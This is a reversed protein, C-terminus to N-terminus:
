AEEGTVDYEEAVLIRVNVTDGVKHEDKAAFFISGDDEPAEMYSRGVYFLGDESVSEVIVPYVKGVRSKNFSYSVEQQVAMLEKYRRKKTSPHVQNKMRAAPTGEERSYKFVGVRELKAEKLFEALERHEEETEGPFGTILSTRIVCGPIRERIKKIVSRYLRGDGRRNMRKLVGDSIHQLPIDFYTAVKKAGCIADLIEDTIEDPYLYLIRIIGLGEIADLGSLLEPLLSKGGIDVGYMTTDQAVVVIEKVGRTVLDKAEEILKEVPRSRYVGRIAPIACYTCRNSCGEAIKLYAYCAPTTLIRKGDLYGLDTIERDDFYCITKSKEAAARNEPRDTLVVKKREAVSKIADCVNSYGFAGVVADVEPIFEVIEKGYRQALCGAAVIGSLKGEKKLGAIELITDIGEQKSSEIFGCTNIVVIDADEADGTIEYGADSILGLMIESDVRNKACGLSIMGIKLPRKEKTKGNGSM